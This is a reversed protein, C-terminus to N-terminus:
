PILFGQERDWQEAFPEVNLRLLHRSSKHRVEQQDTLLHQPMASRPPVPEKFILWKPTREKEDVFATTANLSKFNEIDLDDMEVEIAFTKEIFTM